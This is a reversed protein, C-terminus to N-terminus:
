NRRGNRRIFHLIQLLHLLLQLM